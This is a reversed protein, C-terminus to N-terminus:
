FFNKDHWKNLLDKDLFMLPEDGGSIFQYSCMEDIHFGNRNKAEFVRVGIM